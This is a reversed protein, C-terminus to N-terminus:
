LSKPIVLPLIALNCVGATVGVVSEPVGSEEAVGALFSLHANYYYLV